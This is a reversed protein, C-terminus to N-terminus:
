LTRTAKVFLFVLLVIAFSNFIAANLPSLLAYFVTNISIIMTLGTLLILTQLVRTNTKDVSRKVSRAFLYFSLYFIMILAFVFYVILLTVNTIESAGIVFVIKELSTSKILFVSGVIIGACISYWILALDTFRHIEEVSLKKNEKFMTLLAQIREGRTGIRYHLTTFILSFLVVTSILYGFNGTFICYYMTSLGVFSAFLLTSWVIKNFFRAVLSKSLVEDEWKDKRMKALIKRYKRDTMIKAMFKRQRVFTQLYPSIIISIIIITIIGYVLQQTSRPSFVLNCYMSGILFLGAIINYIGRYPMDDYYLRPHFRPLEEPSARYMSLIWAGHTFLVLATSGTAVSYNLEPTLTSYIFPLVILQIASLCIFLISYINTEITRPTIITQYDVFKLLYFLLLISVSLTSLDLIGFLAGYAFPAFSYLFLTVAFLNYIVSLRIAIEQSLPSSIYAYIEESKKTAMLGLSLIIITLLAVVWYGLNFLVQLAIGVIGGFSLLIMSISIYRLFEKKNM